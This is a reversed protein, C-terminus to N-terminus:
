GLHWTSSVILAVTSPNLGSRTRNVGDRRRKGTKISMGVDGQSAIVGDCDSYVSDPIHSLDHKSRIGSLAFIANLM